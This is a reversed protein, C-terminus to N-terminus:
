ERADGYGTALRDADAQWASRAAQQALVRVLVRLQTRAGDQVTGRPPMLYGVAATAGARWEDALFDSQGNTAPSPMADYDIDMTM